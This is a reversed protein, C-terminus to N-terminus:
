NGHRSWEQFRAYLKALEEESLDPHGQKAMFEKFSALSPDKAATARQARWNDIWDQAAKFRTWGPMVASISAEKWKPHRPPKHFEDFKSFFANVFNAM